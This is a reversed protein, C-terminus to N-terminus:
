EIIRLNRWPGFKFRLSMSVGLVIVFTIFVGWVAIPNIVVIKIMFFTVGAMLWHLITSTYMVWKTDGAGRLSGAMILQVLDAITYIAALRVMTKALNIVATDAETLGGSFAMVLKGAGFVFIMMMTFAYILGVRLALGAAKEAGAPNKAGMQQGVVSTTAFGLGLM